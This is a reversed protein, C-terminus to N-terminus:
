EEENAWKFTLENEKFNKWLLEYNGADYQDIYTEYFSASIDSEQADLVHYKAPNTFFDDCLEKFKLTPQGNSIGTNAKSGEIFAIRWFVITMLVIICFLSLYKATKKMFITMGKAKSLAYVLAVIFGSETTMAGVTFVLM